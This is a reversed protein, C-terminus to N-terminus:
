HVDAAGAELIRVVTELERRSTVVRRLRVGQVFQALAARFAVFTDTFTRDAYGNEGTFRFRIDAPLRELCTLTVSLGEFALTAVFVGNLRRAEVRCTEGYRGSVALVPDLLHVGYKEWSKPVSAEIHRLPGLAERAQADLTVSPAYRLASCSFIQGEFQEAAYLCDLDAVHLAVPKDIYVPLGAELFPRSMAVHHEADDRALLIGDVHPIMAIPDDVVHPIRAATAIHTSVAADQTWIHTVQVAPLQDDPFRQRSLYDPIVPFPCSAMAVRDYGNCIASWSYPHGNGDSLGIVGLRLVPETSDAPM